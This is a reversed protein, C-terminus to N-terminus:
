FIKLSYLALNSLMTKEQFKKNRLNRRFKSYSKAELSSRSRIEVVRRWFVHINNYLQIDNYTMGIIFNAQINFYQIYAVFDKLDCSITLPTLIKMLASESTSTCITRCSFRTPSNYTNMLYQRIECM